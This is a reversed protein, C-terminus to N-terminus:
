FVYRVTVGYTRPAGPNYFARTGGGTSFIQSRYEEDALNKGWLAVNWNANSSAWGVTADVVTYSPIVALDNNDPDFFSDDRYRASAKAWWSGGSTDFGYRLYGYLSNNPAQRLENGSFDPICGQQGNVISGPNTGPGCSDAFGDGTSDIGLDETTPTFDDFETDLLAYNGGFEWGEAFLWLFEIEAGTITAEAANETAFEGITNAPNTVPRFFRTVQLDEYDTYFASINLQVTNNAWQSKLGIEYNTASEEDFPTLAREPTSATGTYGGSKFGTAISGYGMVDDAFQYDAVIRWSVNDWDSKDNITWQTPSGTPSVVIGFEIIGLDRAGFIEVEKEEYSYRLGTTLNWKDNVHWVTQGYVAFATADNEEISQNIILGPPPALAPVFAVDLGCNRFCVQENRKIDEDSFFVGVIWELNQSGSSALRFEQSLQTADEAVLNSADSSFGTSPDCPESGDGCSNGGPGGPVGNLDFLWDFESDRYATISTFVMDGLSWDIVASLGLIDREFYGSEDVTSIFPDDNPDGFARSVLQANGNDTVAAIGLPQRAHNGNDETSYDATLTVEVNDSPLWLSQSRIAFTELDGEDKGTVVNKFYGDLNRSSFSIKSLFNESVKGSIRGGIDFQGYDGVTVSVDAEFEETPKPTVFNITGGISNKGYLTGQPGRLVEVRELDYLDFVQASRAAIYVGDVSVVVSDNAAPGDEKTGIGRIAIEPQANSYPSFVLNPVRDALDDLYAVSDERLTAGSIATVAIPVAQLSEERKQATVIIEEISNQAAAPRIGGAELVLVSAMCFFSLLYRNSM